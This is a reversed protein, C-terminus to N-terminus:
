ENAQSADSLIQALQLRGRYQSGWDFAIEKGM